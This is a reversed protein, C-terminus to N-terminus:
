LCMGLGCQINFPVFFVVLIVANLVICPYVCNIMYYLPMRQITLNFYVDDILLFSLRMLRSNSQQISQDTKTLQWVSNQIYDQTDISADMFSLKIVPIAQMWSGVM